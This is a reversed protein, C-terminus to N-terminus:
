ATEQNNNATERHKKPPVKSCAKVLKEYQIELDDIAMWLVRLEVRLDCYQYFVYATVCLIAINILLLVILANEITSLEM